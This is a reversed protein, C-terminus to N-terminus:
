YGSYTDAFGGFTIPTDGVMRVDGTLDIIDFRELKNTYSATNCHRTRLWKVYAPTIM